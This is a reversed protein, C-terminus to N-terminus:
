LEGCWGCTSLFCIRNRFYRSKSSWLSKWILHISHVIVKGLSNITAQHTRLAGLTLRLHHWTIVSQTTELHRFDNCIDHTNDQQWIGFNIQLAHWMDVCNLSLSSHVTGLTLAMNGQMRVMFHWFHCAKIHSSFLKKSLPKEECSDPCKM